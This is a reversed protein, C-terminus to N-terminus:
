FQSPDLAILVMFWVVMVIAALAIQTGTAPESPEFQDPTNKYDRM